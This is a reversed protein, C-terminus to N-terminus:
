VSCHQGCISKGLDSAELIVPQGAHHFRQRDLAVVFGVSRTQCENELWPLRQGNRVMVYVHATSSSTAGAQNGLTHPLTTCQSDAQATAAKM